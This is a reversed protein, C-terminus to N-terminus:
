PVDLLEMLFETADKSSTMSLARVAELKLERDKETRAIRILAQVNGQMAMSHLVSSRVERDTESEYIEVMLESVRQGGSM